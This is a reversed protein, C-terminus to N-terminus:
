TQRFRNLSQPGANLEINNVRFQRKRIHYPSALANAGAYCFGLRCHPIALGVGEPITKKFAYSRLSPECIHM